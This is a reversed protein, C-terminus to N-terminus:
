SNEPLTSPELGEMPMEPTLKSTLLLDGFGEIAHRM